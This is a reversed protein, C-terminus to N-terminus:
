FRFSFSLFPLGFPFEPIEYQLLKMLSLDMAFTPGFLRVGYNFLLANKSIHAEGNFYSAPLILEGIVKFRNGLQASLGSHLSMILRDSLHVGSNTSGFAGLASGGLTLVFKGEEDLIEDYIASLGALVAGSRYNSSAVVLPKLSFISDRTTRMRYKGTLSFIVFEDGKGGPLPFLTGSLQFDDTVGYSLGVGIVEYSNVTWQGEKITEATSNLINRDVSADNRRRKEAPSNDLPPAFSVWEGRPIAIPVPTPDQAYATGRFSFVFAGLVVVGVSSRKM